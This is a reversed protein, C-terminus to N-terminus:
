GFTTHEGGSNETTPVPLTVDLTTGRDPSSWVNFHGGMAEVREGMSILGFGQRGVEEPVFGVGDDVVTLALGQSNGSLHVSITNAQSHKLANQLAEQVTRYVCLALEPPVSTPVNKHTFTIRPSHDPFEGLLGELASALGIVRLRAPYLQHSLNRISRAIDDAHMVAESVVTGAPGQVMGTLQHLEINLITLHQSIDDHLERAIRSRETEQATLLRRGLERIRAFSARLESEARRRRARHLLLAVILGTQVALLAVGGVLYGGYLDWAGPERFKIVSDAPLLRGDLAWRNLQRIDFMYQNGLVERVPITAPSEGRLVRLGLEASAKGHLELSYLYGGVPGLGLYQDVFVYVPASAAASIKSAADHPVFTQGTGDRFLSLYLIVSRPSVSSVATLLDGMPLDTLYTFSLRREFPEFERRAAAQLNRDFDSTGGVVYVERADPQLRLAIDLTPAFVRRVLLGTMSAPLTVGELDRADAGCFVIPVGPAFTDGHHLLFTLAPGMVGVILDLKRSGYKKVFYDRLALEHQEEPFQAGYISETFFEVGDGLGASLTSRIGQDLISLGPLTRDEDFLLLVGKHQSQGAAPVPTAALTGLLFLSVVYLPSGPGRSTM